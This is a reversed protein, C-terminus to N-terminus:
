YPVTLILTMGKSPATDIDLMGDLLRARERINRL